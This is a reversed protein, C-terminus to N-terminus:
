LHKVLNKMESCMPTALASFTVEITVQTSTLNLSKQKYVNKEHLNKNVQRVKANWIILHKKGLM